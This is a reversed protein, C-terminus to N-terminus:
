ASEAPPALEIRYLPGLSKIKDLSEQAERIRQAIAEAQDVKVLNLKALEQGASMAASLVHTLGSILYALEHWDVTTDLLLRKRANILGIRIAPTLNPPSGWWHTVQSINAIVNLNEGLPHMPQDSIGGQLRALTRPDTVLFRLKEDVLAKARELLPRAEPRIAESLAPSVSPNGLAYAIRALSEPVLAVFEEDSVKQDVIAKRIDEARDTACVEFLLKLDEDLADDGTNVELEAM